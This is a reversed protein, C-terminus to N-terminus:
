IIEYLDFKPYSSKVREINQEYLNYQKNNLKFYSLIEPFFIDLFIEENETSRNYYELLDWDISIDPQGDKENQIILSENSYLKNIRTQVSDKLSIFNDLKILNGDKTIDAKVILGKYINLQKYNLEGLNILSDRWYANSKNVKWLISILSDSITPILDIETKITFSSGYRFDPVSIYNKIELNITDTISNFQVLKPVDDIRKSNGVILQTLLILVKIFIKSIQKRM